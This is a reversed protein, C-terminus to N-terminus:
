QYRSYKKKIIKYDVETLEFYYDLDSESIVKAGFRRHFALVSVNKKRVDFHAKPFGLTYFGFDYVCLLSEIAYNASVNDKMIWSGWCFSDERLDYLRVLGVNDDQKSQIIFYFENRKRERAKYKKIWEIQAEVGNKIGSLFRARNSNQRMAYIFEADYLEVLRMNIHKGEIGSCKIKELIKSM